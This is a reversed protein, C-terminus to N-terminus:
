ITGSADTDIAALQLYMGVKRGGEIQESIQHLIDGAMYALIQGDSDEPRPDPRKEYGSRVLKDRIYRLLCNCIKTLELYLVEGESLAVEASGKLRHIQKSQPPAKDAKGNRRKNGLKESMSQKQEVHEQLRHMVYDLPPEKTRFYKLLLTSTKSIPMPRREWTKLDSRIKEANRDAGLRHLVRARIEEPTSPVDGAFLSKTHFKIIREIDLWVIDTLGTTRLASHIHVVAFISRHHNALRMGAEEASFRQALIVTGCYLLNSNMYFDLNRNPRIVSIDLIGEGANEDWQKDSESDYDYVSLNESTQSKLSSSLKQWIVHKNSTHSLDRNMFLFMNSTANEMEEETFM